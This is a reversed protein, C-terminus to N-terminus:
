VRPKRLKESLRGAAASLDFKGDVVFWGPEQESIYARPDSAKLAAILDEASLVPRDRPTM